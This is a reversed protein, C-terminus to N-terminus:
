EITVVDEKNNKFISIEARDTAGRRLEGDETYIYNIQVFATGAPLSLSEAQTLIVSVVKDSEVNVDTSHKELLTNFDRDSITVYVDDAETLTVDNEVELTIKPTTARYM